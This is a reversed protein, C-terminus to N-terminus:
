NLVRGPWEVRYGAAEISVAIEQVKAVSFIEVRKTALDFKATADPDIDKRAVM